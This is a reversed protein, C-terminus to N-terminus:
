CENLVSDRDTFGEIITKNIDIDVTYLRRVHFM